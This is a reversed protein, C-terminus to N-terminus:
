AWGFLSGANRSTIEAVEEPTLGLLDAAAEATHRVFAPENRRGRVAQPALYPADTELLLRDPPITRVVERFEEAKPYTVTGSLSIHIGYALCFEVDAPGGSFCHIVGQLPVYARLISRLDGYAERCHMVVPRGLEGALELHRAFLERQNDASAYDKAYDLGTEGVAAARPHSLFERLGEASRIRDAEHPHIGASFYIEPFREAIGLARRSSELDTGVSLIRGVGAERARAVVAELDGAFAGDDLHAHSDALVPAM